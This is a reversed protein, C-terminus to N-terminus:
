KSLLPKLKKANEPDLGELEAWGAEYATKV